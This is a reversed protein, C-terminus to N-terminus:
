ATRGLDLGGARRPGDGDTSVLQGVWLLSFNRRRLVAFPGPRPAAVASTM